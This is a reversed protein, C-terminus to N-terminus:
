KGHSVLRGRPLAPHFPIPGLPFRELFLVTSVAPFTGLSRRWSSAIKLCFFQNEVNISKSASVSILCSSAARHSTPFIARRPPYLILFLNSRHPNPCASDGKPCGMPMARTRTNGKIIPRHHPLGSNQRAPRPKSISARNAGIAQLPPATQVNAMDTQNKSFISRLRNSYSRMRWRTNNRM